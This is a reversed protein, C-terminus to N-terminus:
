YSDIGDDNRASDEWTLGSRGLAGPFVMRDYLWEFHMAKIRSQRFRHARQFEHERHMKTNVRACQLGNWLYHADTLLLSVPHPTFERVLGQLDYPLEAYVCADILKGPTREHRKGYQKIWAQADFPQPAAIPRLREERKLFFARLADDLLVAVPHPADPLSMRARKPSREMILDRTTQKEIAM